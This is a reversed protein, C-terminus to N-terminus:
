GDTVQEPRLGELLHLVSITAEKGFVERLLEFDLECTLIRMVLLYDGMTTLVYPELRLDVDKWADLIFTVGNKEAIERLIVSIRKRDRNICARTIVEVILNSLSQSLQLPDTRPWVSLISTWSWKACKSSLVEIPRDLGFSEERNGWIGFAPAIQPSLPPVVMKDSIISFKAYSWFNGWLCVLMGPPINLCLIKFSSLLYYFRLYKLVETVPNADFFSSTVAVVPIWKNDQWATLETPLDTGPPAKKLLLGNLVVLTHTPCNKSIDNWAVSFSPYVAKIRSQGIHTFPALM